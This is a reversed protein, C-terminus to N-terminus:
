WTIQRNKFTLIFLGRIQRQSPLRGVECGDGPGAAKWSGERQLGHITGKGAHVGTWPTGPLCGTGGEQSALLWCLRPCSPMAKRGDHALPKQTPPTQPPQPSGPTLILSEPGGPDQNASKITDVTRNPCQWEQAEGQGMQRVPPPFPHCRKLLETVGPSTDQGLQQNTKEVLSLTSGTVHKLVCLTYRQKHALPIREAQQRCRRLSRPDQNCFTRPGPVDRHGLLQTDSLGRAPAAGDGFLEQRLIPENRPDESAGGM